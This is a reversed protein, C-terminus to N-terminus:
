WSLRHISMFSFFMVFFPVIAPALGISAAGQGGCQGDKSSDRNMRPKLFSIWPGKGCRWDNHTWNLRSEPRRRNCLIHTNFATSNELLKYSQPCCVSAAWTAPVPHYARRHFERKGCSRLVKRWCQNKKQLVERWEESLHIWLIVIIPPFLSFSRNSFAPRFPSPPVASGDCLKKTKCRTDRENPLNSRKRAREICFHGWSTSFAAVECVFLAMKIHWQPTEMPVSATSAAGRFETNFRSHSGM